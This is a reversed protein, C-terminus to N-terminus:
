DVETFVSRISATVAERTTGYALLAEDSRYLYTEALRQAKRARRWNAAVAGLFGTVSAAVQQPAAATRSITLVSM